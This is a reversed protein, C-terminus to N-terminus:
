HGRDHREEVAPEEVEGVAAFKGDAAEARGQRYKGPLQLLTQDRQCVALLHRRFLIYSYQPLHDDDIEDNDRNDVRPQFPRWFPSYLLFNSNFVALALVSFPAMRLKQLTVLLM